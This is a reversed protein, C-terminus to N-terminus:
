CMNNGVFDQVMADYFLDRLVDQMAVCHNMHSSVSMNSYIWYKCNHIVLLKPIAETIIDM